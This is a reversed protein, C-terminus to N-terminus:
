QVVYPSLDKYMGFMLLHIVSELHIFCKQFYLCPDKHLFCTERLIGNEWSWVSGEAHTSLDARPTGFPAEGRRVHGRHGAGLGQDGQGRGVQVGVQLWSRAAVVCPVRGLAIVVALEARAAQLGRYSATALPRFSTPADIQHPPPICKLTSVTSGMSEICGYTRCPNKLFHISEYFKKQAGVCAWFLWDIPM